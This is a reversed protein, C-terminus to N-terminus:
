NTLIVPISEALKKFADKLETPNDAQYFSGGTIRAIERTTKTDTTSPYSICHVVINQAKAEEAALIPDRGSNWVGDTMLIMIKEAPNVTTGAAQYGTLMALGTDMGGAMNTAGLMVRQGREAVASSILSYDETLEVERTVAVETEGTIQYEPTSENIESGWTVLGVKPKVRAQSCVQTFLNVAQSLAAWRSGTPDPPYTISEYPPPINPPYVWNTGSNDFCMSHSRDLVLVVNSLYFAATAAQRPEFIPTNYVNGFFLGVAGHKSGKTLSADIRVANYPQINELFNWHGGAGPLCRGLTINNADIQLAKGGVQNENAIRIAESIAADGNEGRNLAATGAKAALDLGARLESRILQMYVYDVSFVAIMLLVASTILVLILMAGQRHQFRSARQQSTLTSCIM